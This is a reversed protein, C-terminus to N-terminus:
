NELDFTWFALVTSVLGLSFVVPVVNYNFRDGTNEGEECDHPLIFFEKTRSDNKGEREFYTPKRVTVNRGLFPLKQISNLTREFEDERTGSDLSLEHRYRKEEEKHCSFLVNRKRIDGEKEIGQPAFHLQLVLILLLIALSINTGLINRKNFFNLNKSSTRKNYFVAVTPTLIASIGGVVYCFIPMAVEQNTDMTLTYRTLFFNAAVVFPFLIAVYGKWYILLMSIVSARFFYHTTYYPILTLQRFHQSQNGTLLVHYETVNWVYAILSSTLGLILVWFQGNEVDIEIGLFQAKSVPPRSLFVVMQLIFMFSSELLGEYTKMHIMMKRNQTRGTLTTWGLYFILAPYAVVTFFQIVLQRKSLSCMRDRNQLMWAVFCTVGPGFILIITFSGWIIHNTSFCYVAHKWDLAWDSLTLIVDVIVGLILKLEPM